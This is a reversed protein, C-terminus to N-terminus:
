PLGYIEVEVYHNMETASNGNSYLRVYRAAIGHADIIRGESTEVYAPDRGRGFGLENDLDNNFVTRVERTFDPDDSLQVVVGRYVRAQAHYRWVVIAFLPHSRGLDIQVWQRGPGLEVFYGDAGEKEGDVIQELEGIIPFADSSTVPKNLALNMVGPPVLFDPRRGARPPELNPLRVPVPTGVFMPRPLELVLPVKAPEAAFSAPLLVAFALAAAPFLLRLPRPM